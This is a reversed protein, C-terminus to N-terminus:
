GCNQYCPGLHITTKCHKKEQIRDRKGRRSHMVQENAIESARSSDVSEFEIVCGVGQGLQLREMSVAGM